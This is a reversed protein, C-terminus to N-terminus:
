IVEADKRYTKVAKQSRSPSRTPTETEEVKEMWEPSFQEEPSFTYEECKGDKAKKDILKLGKRPKLEFIEDERVRSDNYYGLRKARVKM